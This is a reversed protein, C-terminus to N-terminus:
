AVPWTEALVIRGPVAEKLIPTAELPLLTTKLQPAQLKSLKLKRSTKIPEPKALRMLLNETDSNVAEAFHNCNFRCRSM